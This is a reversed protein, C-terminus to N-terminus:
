GVRIPSVRINRNYFHAAGSANSTAYELKVVNSAALGTRKRRAYLTVIQNAAINNWAAAADGSQWGPSTDGTVWLYIGALIAAGSSTPLLAVASGEVNYDGALPVTIQDTTTTLTTYTTSTTSEDTGFTNGGVREQVLPQQEGVAEWKFSSASGANYRLHWIIGNTADAVYVIEQGDVPSGPLSTVRTPAATAAQWQGNGSTDTATWVYGVVATGVKFQPASLSKRSM